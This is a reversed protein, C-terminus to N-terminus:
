ESYKLYAAVLISLAIFTFIHFWVSSVYEYTEHTSAFNILVSRAGFAWSFPLSVIVSTFTVKQYMVFSFGMFIIAVGLMIGLFSLLITSDVGIWNRIQLAYQILEIVAIAFIVFVFRYFNNPM